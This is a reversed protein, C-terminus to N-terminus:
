ALKLVFGHWKGSFNLGPATGSASNNRMHIVDTASLVFTRAFSEQGPASIMRYAAATFPVAAEGSFSFNMEEDCSTSINAPEMQMEFRYTGAVNITWESAAFTVASTTIQETVAVNLLDIPRVDADAVGVTSFATEGNGAWVCVTAPLAPTMNHGPTQEWNGAGDSVLTNGLTGPSDLLTESLWNGAGDSRLVNGSAGAAPITTGGAVEDPHETGYEIAKVPATASM